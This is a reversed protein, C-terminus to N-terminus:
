AALAAYDVMDFGSPHRVVAEPRVKRVEDAMVGIRKVGPADWRYRYSHWDVGNDNAVHEIDTKLRRDSFMAFIAPLSQALSAVTAATGAAQLFPNGRQYPQQSTGTTTGGLQGQGSAIANLQAINNWDANQDYNWRDIDANILSQDYGELMSGLGMLDRAGQNGFDVMGPMMNLAQMSQGNRAIQQDGLGLFAQLARNQDNAFVDAGMGASQLLAARDAQSLQALQSGADFQRGLANEGFAGAQTFGSLARDLDGAGYNTVAGAADYQRGLANEGLGALTTAGSLRRDISNQGYDTIAGSASLQRGLANEGLGATANAGALMRDISNEGFGAVTNAASLQRGFANEGLGAATTMASLNRDLANQEYGALQSGAALRRSMDNEYATGYFNAAMDGLNRSLADGYNDSNFSRGARAFASDMANRVQGAARDFQQDLFPNSMLGGQAATTLLDTGAGSAGQGGSQAIQQAFPNQGGGALFPNFASTDVQQGAVQGIQQAFPNQASGSAFPNLASTDVQQGAAQTVGQAFPNQAGGSLFPNFAGTNTQQTAAGVVNQTFPNQPGGNSFSQLGNTNTPRAGAAMISSAFPNQNGGTAMNAINFAGPTQQGNSIQQLKQVGQVALDGSINANQQIMNMGSLTQQSFPAVTSGSYYSQPGQSFQQQAATLAQNLAPQAGAWPQSDSKEVVTQTAPKSSKGM